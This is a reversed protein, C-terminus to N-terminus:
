LNRPARGCDGTPLMMRYSTEGPWRELAMREAERAMDEWTTGAPPRFRRFHIAAATIVPMTVVLHGARARRISVNLNQM